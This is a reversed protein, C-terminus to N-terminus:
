KWQLTEVCYPGLAAVTEKKLATNRILALNYKKNGFTGDNDGYCDPLVAARSTFTALSYKSRATKWSTLQGLM